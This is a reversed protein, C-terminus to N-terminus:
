IILYFSTPQAISPLLIAYHHAVSSKEDALASEVGSM